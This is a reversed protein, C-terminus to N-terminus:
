FEFALREIVEVISTVCNRRCEADPEGCIKHNISAAEAPKSLVADLRGTPRLLLKEPLVGLALGYGRAAAVNEEETLGKMYKIVTLEQLRETPDESGTTIGGRTFFSFLAERLADAAAQQIYDHPHRINENLFEVLMVKNKVPTTMDARAISGILQCSAARLIEGGRGRFMRAKDLRPVLTVIKEVLAEDMCNACAPRLRMERVMEAVVLLSGHRINLNSDFCSHLAADLAELSREVNISALRAVAKAALGRDGPGLSEVQRGAPAM